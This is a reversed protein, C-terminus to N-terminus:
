VHSVGGGIIQGDSVDGRHTQRHEVPWGAHLEAEESAEHEPFLVEEGEVSGGSRAAGVREHCRPRGITNARWVDRMRSVTM